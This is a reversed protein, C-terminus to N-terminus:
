AARKGTQVVESLRPNVDENERRSRGPYIARVDWPFPVTTFGAVVAGEHRHVDMWGTKEPSFGQGSAAHRKRAAGCAAGACPREEQGSQQGGPRRRGRRAALSRARGRGWPEPRSRQGGPAARGGGSGPGGPATFIKKFFNKRRKEFRKKPGRQAPAGNQPNIKKGGQHM